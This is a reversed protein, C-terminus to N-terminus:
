LPKFTQQLTKYKQEDKIFLWKSSQTVKSEEGEHRHWHSTRSFEWDEHWSVAMFLLLPAEFSAQWFLGEVTWNWQRSGWSYRLLPLPIGGLGKWDERRDAREVEVFVGFDQKNARFIILGHGTKQAAHCFRHLPSMETQQLESVDSPNKIGKM